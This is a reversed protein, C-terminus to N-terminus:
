KILLTFVWIHLKDPGITRGHSNFIRGSSFQEVVGVTVRMVSNEIWVEYGYLNKYEQEM